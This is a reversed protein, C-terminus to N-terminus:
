DQIEGALLTVCVLCLSVELKEGDYNVVATRVDFNEDIDETRGCVWCKGDPEVKTMQKEGGM